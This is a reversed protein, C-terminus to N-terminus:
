PIQKEKHETVKLVREKYAKKLEPRISDPMWRLLHFLYENNPRVKLLIRNLKEIVRRGWENKTCGVYSLTWQQGEIEKIDIVAIEDRADIQRAIYDIEWPYGVMYDIREEKLMRLLGLHNDQGSRFLITDKEKYKELIKDITAGYSNSKSVGLKLNTNKLLAELSVDKSNGFLSNIRSKKVIIKHLSTIANPISFYIFSERDTSKLIGAHCVNQGEKMMSLIRAINATTHHHEYEPLNKEYISTLGDLIGNGKDSGKLIWIPPFDAEAWTISEGASLMVPFITVAILFAAIHLRSLYKSNCKCM